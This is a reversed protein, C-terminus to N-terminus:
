GLSTTNSSCQLDVCSISDNISQIKGKIIELLTIGWDPTGEPLQLKIACATTCKMPKLPPTASTDVSDQNIEGDELEEFEEDDMAEEKQLRFRKQSTTKSSTAGDSSSRSRKSNPVSPTLGDHLEGEELDTKKKGSLSKYLKNFM